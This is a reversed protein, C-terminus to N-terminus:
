LHRKRLFVALLNDDTGSYSVCVNEANLTKRVLVNKANLINFM